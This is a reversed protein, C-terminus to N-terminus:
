VYYGGGQLPMISPDQHAPPHNQTPALVLDGAVTAPVNTMRQLPFMTGSAQPGSTAVVPWSSPEAAGPLVAIPSGSMVVSPLSQNSRPVVAMGQVLPPSPLNRNSGPAPLPPAYLEFPAAVTHVLSHKGAGAKNNTGRRYRWMLLGAVLFIVFGCTGLVIAILYETQLGGVSAQMAKELVSSFTCNNQTPVANPDKAPGPTTKPPAYGGAHTHMIANTQTHVHPICTYTGNTQVFSRTHVYM